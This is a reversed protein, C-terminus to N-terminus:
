DCKKYSHTFILNDLISSKIGDYVYFYIYMYNHRSQRTMIYIYTLNPTRTKGGLLRSCKKM